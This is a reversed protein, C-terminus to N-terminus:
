EQFLNTTGEDSNNKNKENSILEITVMAVSDFIFKQIADKKYVLLLQNLMHASMDSLVSAMVNKILDMTEVEDLSSLDITSAKIYRMLQLRIFSFLMGNIDDPIIIENYRTIEEIVNRKRIENTIPRVVLYLFLPFGIM